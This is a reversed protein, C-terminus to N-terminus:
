ISGCKKRQAMIPLAAYEAQKNALERLYKRENDPIHFETNDNQAGALDAGPKHRSKVARKM